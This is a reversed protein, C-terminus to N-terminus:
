SSSCVTSFCFLHFLVLSCIILSLAQQTIQLSIIAPKSYSHIIDLRLQINLRTRYKSQICWNNLWQLLVAFYVSINNNCNHLDIYPLVFLNLLKGLLLMKCDLPSSYLCDPVSSKYLVSMKFSHSSPSNFIKVHKTKKYVIVYLFQENYHFLKSYPLHWVLCKLHM